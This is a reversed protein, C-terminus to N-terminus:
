EGVTVSMTLIVEEDENMTPLMGNVQEKFASIDGGATYTATEDGDSITISTVQDIGAIQDILTNTDLSGDTIITYTNPTDPDAEVTVGENNLGEIFSDIQEDVVDSTSTKVVTYKGVNIESDIEYGDPVYTALDTDKDFIGGTVAIDASEYNAIKTINPYSAGSTFEGDTIEVHGVGLGYTGNSVNAHNYKTADFTGGNITMQHWNLVSVDFADTFSGDHITVIGLEDNKVNYKGGVFNGGYITLVCDDEGATKGTSDYWGNELLASYGGTSSITIGSNDAGEAGIVMTGHNVLTYYGNGNQQDPLGADQSRSITGGLITLTGNNTLAAKGNVTNDITGTGSITMTGNNTLTDSSGVNAITKGNLNLNLTKGAPVTINEEIDSEVTLNVTENNAVIDSITEYVAGDYVTGLKSVDSTYYIFGKLNTGFGQYKTLSAATIVDRDTIETYLEVNEAMTGSVFTVSPDNDDGVDANVSGWVNGSTNWNTLVVSAGSVQLGCNGCNQATVDTIASTTGQGHAVIASKVKENGVLIVNTINADAGSVGLMHNTGYPAEENVAWNASANITHGGGNFIVGAPVVLVASNPTGSVAANDLEVNKLLEITDGSVADAFANALVNYYKSNIKAVAEAENFYKVKLTYSITAGTNSQASVGGSLTTNNDTPMSNIVGKKFTEISATDGINDLTVSTSGLNYIVKSPNIQKILDIFQDLDDGINTSSITANILSETRKISCNDSTFSDLFNNVLETTVEVFDEPVEVEEANKIYFTYCVRANYAEIYLLFAKCSEAEPMMDDVKASFRDITDQFKPNYIAAERNDTFSAMYLDEEPFSEIISKIIDGIGEVSEVEIDYINKVRKSLNLSSTEIAPIMISNIKDQYSILNTPAAHHLGDDRIEPVPTSGIPLITDKFYPGPQKPISIHNQIGVAWKMIHEKQAENILGTDVLLGQVAKQFNAMTYLAEMYQIHDYMGTTIRYPFRAQEVPNETNPRITHVLENSDDYIVYDCADNFRVENDYYVVIAGALRHGTGDDKSNFDRIKKVQDTTM